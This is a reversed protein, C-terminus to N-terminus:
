LFIDLYPIQLHMLIFIKRNASLPWFTYGKLLKNKIAIM